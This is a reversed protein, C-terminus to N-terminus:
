GGHNARKMNHLRLQKVKAELERMWKSVAGQAFPGQRNNIMNILEQLQTQLIYVLKPSYHMISLNELFEDYDLIEYTFGPWVKVDLDYDIYKVAGEDYLYPSGINCYFHIGDARPMAIVNFWKDAFFFCIAPKTYWQKGDSELVTTKYNGGILIKDDKYLKFNRKWIRHIHGNHKYSHISYTNDVPGIKVGYPQM